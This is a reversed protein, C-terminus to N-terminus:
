KWNPTTAKRSHRFVLCPPPTTRLCRL